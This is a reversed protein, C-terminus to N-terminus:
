FKTRVGCSYNLHIYKIEIGIWVSQWITRYPKPLLYSISTHILVCSPWYIFYRKKSPYKGLIPNTEYFGRERYDGTYLFTYTQWCDMLITGIVISQLITDQTTWEYSTEAYLPASLLLLIFLLKKM